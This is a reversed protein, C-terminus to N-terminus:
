PGGFFGNFLNFPRSEDGLFGLGASITVSLAFVSPGGLSSTYLVGLPTPFFFRRARGRASLLLGRCLGPYRSASVGAGDLHYCFALIVPLFGPGYAITVFPWQPLITFLSFPHM